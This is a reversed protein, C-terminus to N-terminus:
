VGMMALLAAELAELRDEQSPPAPPLKGRDAQVEAETREVPQGDALKYRPIGDETYIPNEFYNGQAHYYKDGYGADILIGETSETESSFVDVIKQNETKVYVFYKIKYEM